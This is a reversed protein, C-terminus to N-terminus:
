YPQYWYMEDLYTSGSRGGFYVMDTGTWVGTHGYRAGPAQVTSAATWTDTVPDYLATESRTFSAFYYGGYQASTYVSSRGGQVLMHSGTWVVPAATVSPPADIGSIPGWTDTGPEYYLGGERSEPGSPSGTRYYVGGWILMRSGTWVAAHSYRATWITPTGSFSNPPDVIAFWTDTAPDYAKGSNQARPCGCGGGSYSQYVWGGWVIMRDGTWVASHGSRSVPAGTTTVASWTDAAPNYRAGNNYTTNGLNGGWVIVEAGALVMSFGARASPAGTPDIGLWSDTAPIYRGGSALDTGNTGGWVIMRTGDWVAKHEARATPAGTLNTPTWLNTVPNYRGGTDLYTSAASRGGWVVMESGTWIAVHDARPGNPALAPWNVPTWADLAPDYRGGTLTQTNLVIAETGAVVPAGVPAGATSVPSWTDSQPDYLAYGNGAVLMRGDIWVGTVESRELGAPAPAMPAWTRTEPNYRAGDSLPGVNDRGGWVLFETGTWVAAYYGRASPANETPLARSENNFPDYEEGSPPYSSIGGGRLVRTGTWVSRAGRSASSGSTARWTDTEPRYARNAIIFEIGTWVAPYDGYAGDGSAIPTWVDRAPDYRGGSSSGGGGSLNGGWFIIEKGTWAGLPLSRPSPAGVDTGLLWTDTAPNYRIPRNGGTGGWLVLERGTWVTTANAYPTYSEPMYWVDSGRHHVRLSNTYEGGATVASVPQSGKLGTALETDIATNSWAAVPVGSGGISVTGASAGLGNGVVTLPVSASGILPSRAHLWSAQVEFSLMGTYAVGTEVLVPQAGPHLGMPVTAQIEENAWSIVTAEEGGVLVRSGAGGSGLQTGTLTITTGGPGAAPAISALVPLVIVSETLLSDLGGATLEITHQGPPLTAPIVVSVSEVDWALIDAAVGGIRVSGPTKGFAHGTLVITDGGTGARPTAVDLHPYVVYSIASSVKGDSTRVRVQHTGPTTVAPVYNGITSNNWTGGSVEIDAFLVQGATTGFNIGNVTYSRGYYGTRPSFSTIHPHTSDLLITRLICPTMNGAQDRFRVAITKVGDTPNAFTYSASTSYPHWIGGCADETIQMETAGAATLTLYVSLLPTAPAEVISFDADTPEETDISISDSVIASQNGAHDEFQVFVTRAGEGAALGWGPYQTAYPVTTKVLFYPDNSIHVWDAGVALLDLTVSHAIAYPSGAEILVSPSGPAVTDLTITDAYVASENGAADRFKVSVTRDIQVGSSPLLWAVQSRYPEWISNGFSAGNTLMMESAGTASLLLEAQTSITYDDGNNIAIGAGLAVPPATDYQIADSVPASWHGATDRFAACVWRQAELGAGNPVLTWSKTTVYPEDSAAALATACSGGALNAVKMHSLGSTTDAAALALAVAGAPSTSYANGGDVLVSTMAPPTTDLVTAAAVIASYNGQDDAFRAYYTKQGDGPALTVAASTTYALVTPSLFGIDGSLEVWDANVASLNVTATTGSVLGAAFALSPSTPGITDVLVTVPGVVAANGAADVIRAYTTRNEGAPNTAPAVDWARLATYTEQPSSAFVNTASYQVQLPSLDSVNLRLYYRLAGTATLVAGGADEAQFLTVNPATTDLTVPASAIGSVNGAEDKVEVYVTSAGEGATLTFPKLQGFTTWGAGTLAPDQSIRIQAAGDALTQVSVTASKVWPGNIISVVPTAPADQDVRVTVSRVASENGALDRLQAYVTLNGSTAQLDFSPTASFAVWSAGSFDGNKSLRLQDAAPTTLALSVVPNNTVTPGTFNNFSPAVTDLTITDSVPGYENGAADRFKAYVTKSGEAASLNWTREAAYPEWAAGAFGNSESLLMETADSVSLDLTVTRLTAYDADADILIPSGAAAPPTADYTVSRIVCAPTANGAADKFRVYVTKLEQTASAFTYAKSEGYAQWGPATAAACSGEGIHVFAADVASLSLNITQSTTYSGQQITASALQPPTTDLIVSDAVTVSGNGAADWYRAYLTKTGDAGSFTFTAPAGTVAHQVSGTFGVNDALEVVDANAYSYTVAVTPSTTAAAVINIGVSTPGQTDLNVMWSGADVTRGAEDRVKAYVTRAEGAPTSPLPLDWQVYEQYPQWSSGAFDARNSLLMQLPNTDSAVLHAIVRATTSANLANGGADELQFSTVVPVDTDVVISASVPAAFNRARDGYKVWLTKLGAGAALPYVMAQQFAQETAAAFNEDASLYMYQVGSSDDVGTLALTVQNSTTYVAGGNIAIASYSPAARDLTYSDSVTDTEVGTTKKFRAYLTKVGDAGSFTVSTVAAFPIWPAGTLTSDTSLQMFDANAAGLLVGVTTASTVDAQITVFPAAITSTDLVITDNVVGSRNDAADRFEAYVTKVGNGASLTFTRTATYPVWAADNFGSNESVRMEGADSASLALTVIGSTTSPAGYNIAISPSGPAQSDLTVTQAPLCATRNDAADRFWVRLNYAGNTASSLTYAKTQAYSSWDESCAGEGIAVESAGTASLNLSITQTKTYAGSAIGFAPNEPPTQDLTINASVIPSYNGLDDVFRAYLTKQGDATNLFEYATDALPLTRIDPALFGVDESLEVAAAHNASAAITVIPTGTLTGTITLLPSTPPLTDVLVTLPAPQFTNGAADRLRIHVQRNEGAPDTPALLDWTRNDTVPEWPANTFSNTRSYQVEVPSLDSVDLGIYIRLGATQTIVTGGADEAQFVTVAPPTTDLTVPASAIGSLNGAEDKVQVYVTSAGEGATLTFAKLQTFSSWDAGTLAPNQSVRIQAAGDALTQVTVNPSKVWPGNAISVVPTAPADQDVRVTVSRVASENGAQDRLQAYVTINSSTAQLDFSPTAAFAVWSAGSFDGNKSLRMQDAAPTTLALSVVPDNTVTPGTFNNFSPAVTDLTISDSVPGYENGAADRFKAYVTKGGEAASLNWTREAAYPEWAAGAFGNSESLLMETADSVSLDLTVTRLTAYAADANILLPSGAAAPPTADYTVTRIVCSPTANGAADKFRVYVSKLEQTASAFTYAKSEGYAQWGPATAAACSGEAIHVFAADVASLTLNITQTTAYNGQQITASALQPPTTDLIVSDGATASANGAADFFRGYVTKAGDGAPLNVAIAGPVFRGLSAVFGPDFALEVEVADASGTATVTIAPNTVATPAITITGTPPTTDVSLTFATVLDTVLGAGDRVRASITANGTVLDIIKNPEFPVWAVGAYSGNTTVQLQLNSADSVSSNLVVRSVAIADGSTLPTGDLQTVTVAGTLSPAATDVVVSASVASSYHGARDGFAVWVTKLGNGPTFSFVDTTQFPKPSVASLDNTTNVKYTSLGSTADVASLSLTVISSNVVAAGGNIQVAPLIPATRDLVVTDSVVATEVGTSKKFKAYITKTGDTGSLSFPKTGAYTEWGGTTFNPDDQTLWMENVLGAALFVTVSTQSTVEVAAYISPNTPPTTDLTITQQTLTVVHGADDAVKAYVTKVGNGASLVFTKTSAFSQWDAGSFAADESVMVKTAGSVGPFSLTVINSSTAAQGYNIQLAGVVPPNPDLYVSQVLCASANGVADFFQMRVDKSGESSSVSFAKTGSGVAELAGGCTAGEAVRLQTAGSQTYTLALPNTKTPSAGAITFSAAPPTTDLIVTDGALSSENGAADFFRVYLSKSGDGALLPVTHTANPAFSGLSTVFGPDYAIEADVADGLATLTVSVTTTSVAGAIKNNILLSPSTPPTNDVTISFATLLDSERGAADRVRAVLTSVGAPLDVTKNPLYSEWAVGAFSGTTSVQMQLASLDSVSTAIVVRNDAITSGTALPTGGTTKVVASNVGPDTTDLTVSVSVPASYNGAKDGFVVWVSKTGDSGTLSFVDTPQYPKPSVTAFDNSDHVKYVAVGSHADVASLSLTVVGSGVVTAGGNIQVGPLTPATRDLVVTDSVVATEIGTSKRFKAYITKTGDAGSLPFVKSGVYPEWAGATFNPDDQSLWMDQVVGAALTLLVSTQTTVEVAAVISPATPASTDLTITAQPVNVVHGADDAVKAYVTKVGNGASLVFTKTAAYGDWLVGSFAPDESLMVKTAGAVGAFTVTVVNSSTAAQGYNIQLAGVVPPNPDYYVTRVACESANGAADFFQLRVEKTGESASVTFSRSGAGVAEHAGGCAAGESIRLEAAGSASYQVTVPNDRTPSAQALSYSLIQPPTTDLTVTDGVLASANGAADFFRGYVTKSGDGGTLNVAIPGPTFRGLSTVFGPDFALEVEIADTSGTATVTIAPDTVAAPAITVTGTPPTTDTSISFATVVDVMHGAGDRVRVSISSAGDPLDISKAPDYPVWPQGAFSGNTTLQMELGSESVSSVLKIRSEAITDGTTLPTGDLRTLSFSNVVPVTTDLVVSASVPASYNGAHDGFTVWVTKVGDGGTLTFVDAPQYPKATVAGFDNAPNVKYNAIGALTDVASLSLTVLNSNVVQAGGNIALSPLTPPTADYTISGYIPETEKGDADIYSVCVLKKGESTLNLPRLTNSPLAEPPATSLDCAATTGDTSVAVKVQVANSQQLQLNVAAVSTYTSSPVGNATGLIEFYGTLPRLVIPDVTLDGEGTVTVSGVAREGTESSAAYLTYGGAPVENFEFNGDVGSVTRLTVATTADAAPRFGPAASVASRISATKRLALQVGGSSVLNTGQVQESTALGLVRGRLPPLTRTGLDIKEALEVTLTETVAQFYRTRIKLAYQGPVIGTLSVAGDAETDVNYTRSENQLDLTVQSFDTEGELRITGSLSAKAQKELPANSDFPAEHPLESSCAGLLGGLFAIKIAQKM